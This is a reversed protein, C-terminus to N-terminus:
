LVTQYVITPQSQCADGPTTTFITTSLEQVDQLPETQYPIKVDCIGPTNGETFVNAASKAKMAFGGGVIALVAIASLMLKAKKM